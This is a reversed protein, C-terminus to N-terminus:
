TESPQESPQEAPQEAPRELPHEAPETAPEVSAESAPQVAAAPAEAALASEPPPLPPNEGKGIEALRKTARTVVLDAAISRRNEPRNLMKRFTEVQDGFRASMTEIQTDIEEDSVKFQERKVLDSLVTTRKLRKIATERYEAKLAAEDKNQVRMYDALSLGRNRLSQDLDQLIDKIYDEVMAEPYKVTAQETLMELLKEAYDAETARTLEDQLDKRVKIRLDLLNEIENNTVTKAFDDNLVPLTRSKVELVEVTFHIPHNALQEADEPVVVTFTKSEGASLGVLNASFGPVLDREKEDTLLLNDYEDNIYPEKHEEQSESESAPHVVESSIKAKLVDGMQAPRAAPEVVARQEQFRKIADTVASDEVEKPEYPLRLERYNGLDVEPQKAVVFTLKMSPDTEMHELNGPAYPEIGSGDLAGRYVENGLEEIAEDLVAQPGVYKLVINYPAKGKRFGPINVQRAIRRAANQMAQQVKDAAVEVTLRATHNDLHEIQTTM